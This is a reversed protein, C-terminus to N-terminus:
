AWRAAGAMGTVGGGALVLGNKVDFTKEGLM